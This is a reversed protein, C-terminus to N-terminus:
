RGISRVSQTACSTTLLASPLVAALTYGAKDALIQGESLLEQVVGALKGERQEAFVWLEKTTSM